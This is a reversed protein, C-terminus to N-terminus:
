RSKLSEWTVWSETLHMIKFSRMSFLTRDAKCFFHDTKPYVSLLFKCEHGVKLVSNDKAM